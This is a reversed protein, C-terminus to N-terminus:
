HSAVNVTIAWHGTAPTCQIAEGCYTRTAIAQSTGPQHATFQATTTGCTGGPICSTRQSSTAGTQSLVAGNSTPSFTWNYAGLTVILVQGVSLTITKGNDADDATVPGPAATV